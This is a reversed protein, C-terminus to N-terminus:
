SRAQRQSTAQPPKDSITVVFEGKSRAATPPSRRRRATSAPRSSTTSRTPAPRSRRDGALRHGQERRADLPGFAFTNTQAAEAGAPPAADLEAGTEGAHGAEPVTRSSGSRGTPTPSAPSTPASRSRAARRRRRRHLDHGRPRPSSTAPTRSRSSCTPPRRRAAPRDPVEGHDVAVPFDGSPENADQRESTAAAPALGARSRSRAGSSSGRARARRPNPAPRASIATEEGLARAVYWRM